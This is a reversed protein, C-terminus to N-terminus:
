GSGGGGFLAGGVVLAVNAIAGAVLDDAAIGLGGPLRELARLPWPKAVDLVRFLCFALLARPAFGFGTTEATFAVAAMYGAVEDTVVIEPDARGTARVAVPALAWTLGFFFARRRAGGM